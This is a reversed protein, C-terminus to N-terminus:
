PATPVPTPIEFQNWTTFRMSVKASELWALMFESLTQQSGDFTLGDDVQIRKEKLWKQCAKKTKTNYSLRKGNLSVQACWIGDPKKFISGENRGRIKNAM